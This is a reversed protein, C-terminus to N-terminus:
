GKASQRQTRPKMHGRPPKRFASLKVRAALKDYLATVSVAIEGASAHFVAHVSKRIGCVVQGMVDVTTSFMLERTYQAQATKKFLGDLWEPALAYELLGWVMVSVPCKGAFQEFVKRLL